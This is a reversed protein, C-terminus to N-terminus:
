RQALDADPTMLLPAFESQVLQRLTHWHDGLAAREPATLRDYTRGYQAFYWLPFVWFGSGDTPNGADALSAVIRGTAGSVTWSAITQGNDAIALAEVFAANRDPGAYPTLLELLRRQREADDAAPGAFRRTHRSEWNAGLAPVLLGGDSAIAMIGGAARSWAAAKSKAIAQHTAGSEDPDASVSRQAPTVPRVPLGDLLWRLMRQKDANGTALLIPPHQQNHQHM